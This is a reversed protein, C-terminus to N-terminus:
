IKEIKGLRYKNIKLMDSFNAVEDTNVNGARLYAGELLVKELRHKNIKLMDSFNADGDGNTDGRVVLIYEIQKEGKVIRLKMDSTAYKTYDEERNQEKDYVQIEGNTRIKGLVTSIMTKPQIEKIYILDKDNEIVLDDDIDVVIEEEPKPNIIIGNEGIDLTDEKEKYRITIVTDELSLPGEPDIEYDEIAVREGNDYIAVVEMGSPDFSEGETYETKDPGKTIEIGILTKEKIVIDGDEGGIELTAAKTEDKYTYSITIVTDELSLPGEPSITYDTIISSTHNNFYATVEMGTPDFSEGEVYETKDPKKTIEISNLKKRDEPITVTIPIEIEKTEGNEEYSIIVVEDDSELPRSPRVEFDTIEEIDGNDYEAIIHIDSTDFPEGEIYETKVEGEYELGKIKRLMITLTTGDANGNNIAIKALYEGENILVQLNTEEILECNTYSFDNETYVKSSNLIASKFIPPLDVVNNKVQAILEQNECNFFRLNSMSDVENVNDIQNNSVSLTNLKTLNSIGDLSTIRNNSLYLEELNTLDTIGNINKLRNNSLTLTKLKTLTKLVSVDNIQNEHAVFDTLNTFNEIGDLYVIQKGAVSLSTISAINDVTMEITKTQDNKVEIKDALKDTITSYLNDDKFTIQKTEVTRKLTLVTGDANGGKITVTGTKIGPTLTVKKSDNSLECNSLTFPESTYIKSGSTIAQNFIPYLTFVSDEQEIKLSQNLFEITQLNQLGNIPSIDTINNNKAWLNKLSTFNSVVSINSIKNYRINLDTLATLNKLSSIDTIKNDAISLYKLKKLNALQLLDDSELKNTTLYLHTSLNTFYEIGTLDTISKKRLDLQTVSNIDDQSITIEMKTDDSSIVKSGLQAKMASYMNTDKFQITKIVINSLILKTGQGKGSGITVTATSAGSNLKVNKGDSTITCNSLTYNKNAGMYVISSSNKASLFLKPLAIEGNVAQKTITQESFRIDSGTVDFKGIDEIQNKSMDLLMYSNLKSVDKIKNNSINLALIKTLGALSSVDEIQNNSINLAYADEKGVNVIQPTITAGLGKLNALASIDSIKNDNIWLVNLNTLKSLTSIDSINNKELRLANLKTLKSLPTISSIKNNSANLITLKTLNALSTISDIQNNYLMLTSLNTLGSLSTISTIKNDNLYLKKLKTLKSLATISSIQNGQLDLEELNTLSALGSINSIKNKSLYLNKLTTLGSLPELNSIKNSDLYLTTLGEFDELGTLDSLNKSQLHLTDIKEIDWIWIWKDNWWQVNWSNNIEDYVAAALTKDEFKVLKAKAQVSKTPIFFQLIFLVVILIFQIIRKRTKM